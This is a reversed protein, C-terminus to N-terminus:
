PTVERNAITVTLEILEKKLEEPDLLELFKSLHIDVKEFQEVELGVEDVCIPDDMIHLAHSLFMFRKLLHDIGVPQRLAPPAPVPPKDIM